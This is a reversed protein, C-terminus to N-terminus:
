DFWPVGILRVTGIGQVVITDGDVVREVIQATAILPSACVAAFALAHRLAM